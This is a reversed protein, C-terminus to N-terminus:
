ADNSLTLGTCTPQSARGDLTPTGGRAHERRIITHSEFRMTHQTKGTNQRKQQKAGWLHVAQAEMGDARRELNVDLDRVMPDRVELYHQHLTVIEQKIRLIVYEGILLIYSITQQELKENHTVM